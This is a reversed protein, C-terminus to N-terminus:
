EAKGKHRRQRTREGLRYGKEYAKLCSDHPFDADEDKSMMRKALLGDIIGKDEFWEILDLRSFRREQM